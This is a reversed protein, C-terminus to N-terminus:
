NGSYKRAKRPTPLSDGEEECDEILLELAKEAEAIAERRTDGLGAMQNGFEPSIAVFKEDEENYFVDLSYKYKM